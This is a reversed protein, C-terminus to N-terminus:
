QNIIIANSWKQLWTEFNEAVIAPAISVPNEPLPAFKTFIEPIEADANVPYVFMQGPMDSQWEPSLVADVFKQALDAKETGKLIGIYEIMEFCTDDAVVAATPAKEMPEEAYFPAAAPSTDYSVVIPQHGDGGGATFNTYYATSWDPVIEAGNEALDQWYLLYGDEGFIDITLLMFALGPTSSVPNEISLMGQYAPTILDELKTPVALNKEAFYETDYNLCVNAHDFPLVRNEADIKYREAIKGLAPAAYSELLDNELARSVLVSNIGLIVDAIPADKTLIARNLLETGDGAEIFQLKVGNDTEFKAVLEESVAYSDYVLVDLTLTKQAIVATVSVLMLMLAVALVKKIM